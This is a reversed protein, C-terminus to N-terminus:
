WEGIHILAFMIVLSASLHDCSLSSSLHPFHCPFIGCVLEKKDVADELTVDDSLMQIDPADAMCAGYLDM